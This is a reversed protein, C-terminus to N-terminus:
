EPQIFELYLREIQTVYNDNFWGVFDDVNTNDGLHEELKNFSEWAETLTESANEIEPADHTVIVSGLIEQTETDHLQYGTMKNKTLQNYSM